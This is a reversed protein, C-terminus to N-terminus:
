MDDALFSLDSFALCRPQAATASPATWAAIADPLPASRAAITNAASRAQRSHISM